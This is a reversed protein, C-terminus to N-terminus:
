APGRTTDSDLGAVKRTLSTTTPTFASSMMLCVMCFSASLHPGRSWERKGGGGVVGNPGLPFLTSVPARERERGRRAPRGCASGHGLVAHLAERAVDDALLPATNGRGVWGM